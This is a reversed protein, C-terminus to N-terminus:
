MHNCYSGNLYKCCPTSYGIMLWEIAAWTYIWEHIYQGSYWCADTPNHTTPKLLLCIPKDQILPYCSIAVVIAPTMTEQPWCHKPLNPESHGLQTAVVATTPNDVLQAAPKLDLSVISLSGRLARNEYGCPYFLVADELPILAKKEPNRPLTQLNQALTNTREMCPVGPWNIRPMEVGFLVWFGSIKSPGDSIFSRLAMPNGAHGFNSRGFMTLAESRARGCLRWRARGASGAPWTLLSSSCSPRKQTWLEVVTSCFVSWMSRWYLHTM